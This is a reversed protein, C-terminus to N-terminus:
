LKERCFYCNYDKAANHSPILNEANCYPCYVMRKGKTVPDGPVYRQAYNYNGYYKKQRPQQQPRSQVTQEKVPTPASQTRPVNPKASATKKKNKGKSKVVFIIIIIFVICEFM